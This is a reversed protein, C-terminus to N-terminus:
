GLGSSAAQEKWRQVNVGNMLLWLTLVGEGLVGPAMVYPSLSNALPPSLFTLWGLGGFAMLAGLARPLFTSRFILYGILLCYCGFFILNINSPIIQFASLAGLACGAFSVLAALLSLRGSVPKFLDYFLLSVAVYCATAVLSAALRGRVFVAAYAGTLITLLYFVGAVRARFGPSAEAMREM